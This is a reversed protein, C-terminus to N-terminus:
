GLSSGQVRFTTIDRAIGGAAYVIGDKRIPYLVVMVLNSGEPTVLTHQFSLQHNSNFVNELMKMYLATTQPDYVDRLHLPMTNEKMDARIRSNNSYLFFGHADLMFIHETTSEVLARYMKESEKLANIELLAKTQDTITWVVGKSPLGAAASRNYFYNGAIKFVAQSGNKRRLCIEPNEYAKGESFSKSLQELFAHEVGENPYIAEIGLKKLDEITYGLMRTVTENADIVNRNMDAVIIGATNSHFVTDRWSGHRLLQIQMKRQIIYIGIVCLALIWLLLLFFQGILYFFAPQQTPIALVLRWGPTTLFSCSRETFILGNTYRQKELEGEMCFWRLGHEWQILKSDIRETNTFFVTNEPSILAAYSDHFKDLAFSINRRAVVVGIPEGQANDVRIAAFIGPLGTVADPALTRSEGNQMTQQFYEAFSIDQGTLHYLVLTKNSSDICVGKTNLLSCVIQLKSATFKELIHDNGLINGNIEGRELIQRVTKDRALEKAYNEVRNISIILDKMLLEANNRVRIYAVEEGYFQFVTPLVAGAAAFLLFAAPILACTFRRNKRTPFDITKLTQLFCGACAVTCFLSFGILILGTEQNFQFDRPLSRFRLLYTSLIAAGNGFHFVSAIKFAAELNKHVNGTRWLMIASFPLFPLAILCLTIIDGGNKGRTLWLSLLLAALIVLHWFIKTRWRCQLCTFTFEALFFFAALQLLVRTLFAGWALQPIAAFLGALFSAGLLGSYFIFPTFRKRDVNIAALFLTGGQLFLAMALLLYLYGSLM